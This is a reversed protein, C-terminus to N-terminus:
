AAGDVIQCVLPTMKVGTAKAYDRSRYDM